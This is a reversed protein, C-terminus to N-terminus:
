VVTNLLLKDVKLLIYIIKNIIQLMENILMKHYKYVNNKKMKLCM